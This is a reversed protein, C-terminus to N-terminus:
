TERYMGKVFHIRTSSTLAIQNLLAIHWGIARIKAGEFSIPLQQEFISNSYRLMVECLAHSIEDQRQYGHIRIFQSCKNIFFSQKPNLTSERLDLTEYGKIYQESQLCQVVPEILIDHNISNLETCLGLLSGIVKYKIHYPEYDNIALDDTIIRILKDFFSKALFVKQYSIEQIIEEHALRVAHNNDFSTLSQNECLCLNVILNSTESFCIEEEKSLSIFTTKTLLMELTRGLIIFFTHRMLDANDLLKLVYSSVLGNCINVLIHLGDITNQTNNLFSVTDDLLQKIYAIKATPHTKHLQWFLSAYRQTLSDM